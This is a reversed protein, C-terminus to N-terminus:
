FDSMSFRFIKKIEHVILIDKLFFHTVASIITRAGSGYIENLIRYVLEPTVM